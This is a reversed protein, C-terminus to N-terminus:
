RETKRLTVKRMTDSKKLLTKSNPRVNYVEFNESVVTIIPINKFKITLIIALMIKSINVLKTLFDVNNFYHQGNKFKTKQLILTKFFDSVIGIITM